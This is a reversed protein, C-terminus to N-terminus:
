KEFPLQLWKSMTIEFELPKIIEHGSGHHFTLEGFYIENNIIYFDVRVYIMEKSLLRAFTLMEDLCVPKQIIHDPATPYLISAPIYEWECNYLNREHKSFRGFDVQIFKPEGRFMQIKYDKLEDGSEDVMYPEAIIKPPVNKYPWERSVWFYNRGLCQNLKKKASDYDFEKKGKCFVISGSDHTCKLVFEDPLTNFDIDDFHEWVGLTPIIHDRGIRAAVWEKVAYKDVLTTYLPNRDYLKLWQIKENFTTPHELDLPRNGMSSLDWSLQIAKRDDLNKWHEYIKKEDFVIVNKFGMTALQSSIEQIAQRSRVAIIVKTNKYDDSVDYPSICKVGHYVECQQKNKSNDLFLIGTLGKSEVCSLVFKGLIGAGFIFLNVSM